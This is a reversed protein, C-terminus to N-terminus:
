RFVERCQLAQCATQEKSAHLGHRLTNVAQLVPVVPHSDKLAVQKGDEGEAPPGESCQFGGSVGGRRDPLGANLLPRAYEM